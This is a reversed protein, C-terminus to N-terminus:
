KCREPKYHVNPISPLTSLYIFSLYIGNRQQFERDKWRKEIKQECKGGVKKLLWQLIKDTLYLM